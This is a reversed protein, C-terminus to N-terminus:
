LSEGPMAVQGHKDKWSWGTRRGTARGTQGARGRGAVSWLCPQVPADQPERSCVLPVAGEEAGDDRLLGGPATHSADPRLRRDEGSSTVSLLPLLCYRVFLLLLVSLLLLLSVTVSLLLSCCYCLSYCDSLTCRILLPLSHPFVHILVCVPFPRLIVRGPGPKVLHIYETEAAYIHVKQISHLIRNCWSRVQM